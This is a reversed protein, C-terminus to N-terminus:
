GIRVKDSREADAKARYTPADSTQLATGQCIFTQSTNFYASTHMSYASPSPTESKLSTANQKQASSPPAAQPATKPSSESTQTHFVLFPVTAQIFPSSLAPKSSLVHDYCYQSSNSNSAQPPYRLSPKIYLGRCLSSSRKRSHRLCVRKM